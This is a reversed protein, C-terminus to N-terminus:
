GNFGAGNAPKGSIRWALEGATNGPQLSLWSFSYAAMALAM